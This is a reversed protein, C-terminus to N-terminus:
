KEALNWAFPFILPELDEPWLQDWEEFLRPSLTPREFMAVNRVLQKASECGVIIGARLHTSRHLVYHLCFEDRDVNHGACFDRLLTVASKGHEIGNPVDDPNMLCLGQLYVSRLTVRGGRKVFQELKGSRLFRRDFPSAPCQIAGFCGDYLASLAADPRYISVGFSGVLGSETLRRAEECFSASWDRMEDERHLLWSELKNLGLYRLSARVIDELQGAHCGQISGKSTVKVTRNLRLRTFAEGLRRESTGYAAATDFSTIGSEAASGILSLVAEDCPQGLINSIGYAVGIQATGVIYRHTQM